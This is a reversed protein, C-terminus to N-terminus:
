KIAEVGQNSINVPVIKGNPTFQMEEICVVRSNADTESPPRRHYVIYWKDMDPLKIVSNHGAGKGIKKDQVLVTGERKFPGLPSDSIAYAVNYTDDGWNGESWMFYYKGNKKFMFPGEVYNRPTIEKYVTGDAFPTVASLDSKLKVVNCHGWGGYYMYFTSDDDQFVHQDIPQAGNVITAVLPRGLLDKYPGGPHDAVAVGIGGIEGDHIDNAAFFLFYKGKSKLASPAWMARKAWKVAASDVIRSHKKWHVLDSSSFADLFVQRDYVDSWTPFIWFEKGYQVAFPDAYYGPFIPNGSLAPRNQAHSITTVLLIIFLALINKATCLM